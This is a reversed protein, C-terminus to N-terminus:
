CLMVYDKATVYNRRDCTQQTDDTQRGTISVLTRILLKAVALKVELRVRPQVLTSSTKM